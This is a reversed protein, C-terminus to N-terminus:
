TSTSASADSSVPSCTRALVRGQRSSCSSAAEGARHVRWRDREARGRHVQRRHRRHLDRQLRCPERAMSAFKLGLCSWRCTHSNPVELYPFFSLALVGLGARVSYSVTERGIKTMFSSFVPPLFFPQDPGPCLPMGLARLQLCMAASGFLAGQLGWFARARQWTEWQAVAWAICVFLVILLERELVAVFPDSPPSLFSGILILFSALGMWAGVTPIAFLVAAIWAAVACRLVPKISSWNLNSTVWGFRESLGLRRRWKATEVSSTSSEDSDRREDFTVISPRGRIRVDPRPETARGRRSKEM